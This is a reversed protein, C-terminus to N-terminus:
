ERMKKSGKESRKGEMRPGNEPKFGNKSFYTFLNTM